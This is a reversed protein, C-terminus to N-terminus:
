CIILYGDSFLVTNTGFYDLGIMLFGAYTLCRIEQVIRITAGVNKKQQRQCLPQYCKKPGGEVKQKQRRRLLNEKKKKVIFQINM